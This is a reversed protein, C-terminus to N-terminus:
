SFNKGDPAVKTTKTGGIICKLIVRFGGSGQSSAHSDFQADDVGAIATFPSGLATNGADYEQGLIDGADFWYEFHGGDDLPVGVLRTGDAREIPESFNQGDSSTRVYVKVGDSYGLWLKIGGRLDCWYHVFTATFDQTVEEWALGNDSWETVVYSDPGIYAAFHALDRAAVYTIGGATTVVAFGVRRRWRNYMEKSSSDLNGAHVIHDENKGFPLGTEYIGQSDSGGSGASTGGPNTKLTVLVGSESESAVSDLVIGWAQGRLTKGFAIKTPQEYAGGTWVDGAGPYVEVEDYLPQAYITRETQCDQDICFIWEGPDGYSYRLPEIYFGYLSNGHYGDSPPSGSGVSWGSQGAIQGLSQDIDLWSYTVGPGEPDIKFLFSRDSIRGNSFTWSAPKQYTTDTESIWATRWPTFAPLFSIESKSGKVLDIRDVSYTEGDALGEITLTDFQNFGWTRDSNAPVGGFETLPWRSEQELVDDVGGDPNCLDIIVDIYTNAAGTTGSYSKSEGDAHSPTITFPQNASTSKIRVKMHRHGECNVDAGPSYAMSGAGGSVVAVHAGGANSYSTNAVGSWGTGSSGDTINVDSHTLTGCPWSKGRWMLRWDSPDEGKAALDGVLLNARVGTTEHKELPDYALLNTGGTLTFEKQEISVSSYPSLAHVEAEDVWDSGNWVKKGWLEYELNGPYPQNFAFLAGIVHYQTPLQLQNSVFAEASVGPGTPPITIEVYLNDKEAYSNQADPIGGWSDSPIMSQGNCTFLWAIPNNIFDGINGADGGGCQTYAQNSALYSMNFDSGTTISHSVSAGNISGTLTIETGAPVVEYFRKKNAPIFDDTPTGGFSPWEIFNIETTLDPHLGVVEGKEILDPVSLSATFEFERQEYYTTSQNFAESSGDTDVETPGEYISAVWNLTDLNNFAEFRIRLLDLLFGFQIESQGSRGYYDGDAGFYESKTRLIGSMAYSVSRNRGSSYAM